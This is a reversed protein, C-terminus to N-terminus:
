GAKPENLTSFFLEKKLYRSILAKTPTIEKAVEKLTNEREGNNQANYKELMMQIANNM